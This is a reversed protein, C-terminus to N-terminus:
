TFGAASPITAASRASLAAADFFIGAIGTTQNGVNNETRQQPVDFRLLSARVGFFQASTPATPFLPFFHSKRTRVKSLVGTECDKDAAPYIRNQIALSATWVGGVL